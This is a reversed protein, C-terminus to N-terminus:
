AADDPARGNGSAPADPQSYYSDIWSKRSEIKAGVKKHPFDHATILHRIRRENTGIYEAIATVNRLRDEALRM